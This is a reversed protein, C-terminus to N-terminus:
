YCVSHQEFLCLLVDGESAVLLCVFSCRLTTHQAGKDVPWVDIGVM